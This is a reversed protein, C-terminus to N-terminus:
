AAISEQNDVPTASTDLHLPVVLGRSRRRRRRQDFTADWFLVFGVIVTGALLYSLMILQDNKARMEANHSAQLTTLEVVKQEAAALASDRASISEELTVLKELSTALATRLNENEMVAVALQDKALALDQEAKIREAQEM